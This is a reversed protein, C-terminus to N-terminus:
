SEPGSDPVARMIAHALENSDGNEPTVAIRPFREGRMEIVLCDEFDDLDCFILGKPTAFIGATAVFGPGVGRLREELEVDAVPSVYANTVHALPIRFSGHFALLQDLIELKIELQDGSLRVNAM